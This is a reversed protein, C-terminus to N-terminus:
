HTEKVTEHHVSNLCRRSLGGAVKYHAKEEYNLTTEGGGLGGERLNLSLTQGENNCGMAQCATM